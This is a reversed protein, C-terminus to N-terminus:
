IAKAQSIRQKKPKTSPNESMTKEEM